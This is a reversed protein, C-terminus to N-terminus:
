FGVWDPHQKLNPNIDIERQPTPFHIHRHAASAKGAAHLRTVYYDSGRRALDFWRQYEYVFEKRREDYVAERFDVASLEPSIDSLKELGARARVEDIAAYAEDTAGESMALAEAYILLV